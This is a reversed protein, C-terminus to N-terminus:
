GRQTMIRVCVCEGDEEEEEEALRQLRKLADGRLRPVLRQGHRVVGGEGAVRPPPSSGGAPAAHLLALYAREGGGQGVPLPQVRASVHSGAGLAVVAHLIHQLHAAALQRAEM